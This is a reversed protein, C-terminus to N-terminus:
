QQTPAQRPLASARLSASLQNQAANWTQVWEPLPPSDEHHGVLELVKSPLKPGRRGLFVYRVVVTAMVQEGCQFRHEAFLWKRDWGLLRCHLQYHQFPKLSASFRANSDGAVPRWGRRLAANWVGTRMWWDFRGIDAISFYRANNMHMNLDLDNPMVWMSLISTGTVGLRGRLRYTLWVWWLRFLGVM